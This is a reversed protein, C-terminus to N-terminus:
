GINVTRGIFFQSEQGLYAVLSPRAIVVARYGLSAIKEEMEGKVRNYFVRSEADAGM